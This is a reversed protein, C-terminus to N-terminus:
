IEAEPSHLFCGTFHILYRVKHDSSLPLAEKGRCLVARSDGCNAIILHNQCLIVVVATSGVTEPALPEISSVSGDNNNESNEPRIGGVEDDVKQFCNLFATKWRDMWSIGDLSSDADHIEKVLVLHLRERCYNAVQLFM